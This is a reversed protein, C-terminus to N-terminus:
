GARNEKIIDASLETLRYGGNKQIEDTTVKRM